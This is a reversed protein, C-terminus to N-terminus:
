CHTYNKIKFIWSHSDCAENYPQELIRNFPRHEVQITDKSDTM